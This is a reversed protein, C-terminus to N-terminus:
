FSTSVLQGAAPCGSMSFKSTSLTARVGRGGNIDVRFWYQGTTLDVAPVTFSGPNFPSSGVGTFPSGWALGNNELLATRFTYGPKATGTYTFVGHFGCLGGGQAGDSYGTLSTITLGAPKAALAESTGWM